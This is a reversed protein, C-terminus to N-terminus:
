KYRFCYQLNSEFAVVPKENDELMKAFLFQYILVFYLTWKNSWLEVM